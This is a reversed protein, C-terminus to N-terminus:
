RPPKELLKPCLQRIQETIPPDLQAQYISSVLCLQEVTLGSTEELPHAERLDAGKLRAGRLDAGGLHAEGLIAGGPSHGLPVDGGPPDRQAIPASFIWLVVVVALVILAGLMM